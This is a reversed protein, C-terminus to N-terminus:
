EGGFTPRLYALLNSLEQDSLLAGWAPMGGKGQILTQVISPDDRLPVRDYLNPAWGSGEGTQGHCTACNTLFRDRGAEGDGDLTLIQDIRARVSDRDSGDFFSVESSIVHAFDDVRNFSYLYDAPFVERIQQRSTQPFNTEDNILADLDLPELVGDGNGDRIVTAGGHQHCGVCNTRANNRNHELYPNSCWTPGGAGADIARMAAALSPHEEFRGPADADGEEFSDVVCMKYNAWVGGELASPRDAGFDTDPRDSWWLSVWQWHRLEKTMIHLGVLRYIDGSRLRITFIEDPSPDAQRDGEEGWHATGALRAALADGDTDYVPMQKGFEARAWQAKVLVGRKPLEAGFCLTFNTDSEPTADLGLTDLKGLCDLIAGYNRLIHEATGPSYLIRANGSAAGGVKEQVFRACEDDPMDDPCVGLDRVYKLYRDLPWRSSRDLSTANWQITEAIEEDTFAQRAARGSPGMGEYLHQFMRKLDDVGYWTQFRPVRPVEGGPLEIDEHMEASNALGLLPVDEVVKFASAWAVQRRRQADSVLLEEDLDSAEYDSAVGALQRGFTDTKGNEDPDHPFDLADGSHPACAALAACAVVGMLGLRTM